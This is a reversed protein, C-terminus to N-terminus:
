TRQHRRSTPSHQTPPATELDSSISRSRPEGAVQGGNEQRCHVLLEDIAEDIGRALRDADAALGAEAYVGFCAHGNVITMGISVGHRDTLPVVPYAREAQCGLLYLPVQPAPINSITLNSTHPSALVRSALPRLPRPAYSLAGLLADAGDPEGHHKRERMAVQVDRLRWLPDAEGCPLSLFLFAIRNGWAEDADGVSVPVMAKVRAACEGRDLLLGRVAGASAALLVDNITTGFRRKITVLDAVPRSLCALHRSMSTPRNLRSPSAPAVTHLLARGSRWAEGPLSRLRRPDLAYGLPARAATVARGAARGVADALLELGSPNREPRWSESTGREPEPTLDLLLAMLEVAGLGDVMCHHAKGVVGLRGDELETIWLEWLPRDRILPESLVDDILEGFHGCPRHRVHNAIDFSRDDVWVPDGLGLPVQALKQRYRPARDLRGAVHARVAEFRPLEGDAPRTFVAAWAVHMPTDRTELTLFAADLPSLRALTMGDRRDDHAGM